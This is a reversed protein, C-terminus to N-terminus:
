QAQLDAFVQRADASGLLLFVTSRKTRSRPYPGHELRDAM